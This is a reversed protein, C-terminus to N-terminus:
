NDSKYNKIENEYREKDENAMIDYKNRLEKDNKIKNWDKSAVKMINKEGPHEKRYENCFHIYANSNKKPVNLKKDKKSKKTLNTNEKKLTKVEITLKDFKIQLENYQNQLIQIKEHINEIDEKKVMNDKNIYLLNLKTM